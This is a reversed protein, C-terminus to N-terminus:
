TIEESLNYFYVLQPQEWSLQLYCFVCACKTTHPSVSKLTFNIRATFAEEVPPYRYLLFINEKLVFFQRGVFFSICKSTALANISTQWLFPLSINVSFDQCITIKSKREQVSRSHLPQVANQLRTLRWTIRAACNVRHIQHFRRQTVPGSNSHLTWFLSLSLLLRCWTIGRKIDLTQVKYGLGFRDHDQHFDMTQVWEISTICKFSEVRRSTDGHSDARTDLLWLVTM